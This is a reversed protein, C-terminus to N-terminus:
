YPYGNLLLRDYQPWELTLLAIPQGFASLTVLSLVPQPTRDRTSIIQMILPQTAAM